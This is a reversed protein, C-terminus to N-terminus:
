LWTQFFLADSMHFVGAGLTAAQAVLAAGAPANTLDIPLYRLGPAFLASVSTAPSVLLTGDLMPIGAIGNMQPALDIAILVPGQVNMTEIKCDMSGAQYSGTVKITPTLTTGKGGLPVPRAFFTMGRHRRTGSPAAPAFPQVAGTLPDMVVGNGFSVMPTGAVSRCVAVGTALAPVAVAPAVTVWPGGAVPVRLVTANSCVAIIDNTWVDYDLGTVSTGAPVPIPAPPVVFMGAAYDYPALVFGDTVLLTKGSPDIPDLAMGTVQNFGPPAPYNSGPTGTGIASFPIADIGDAPFGTTTFLRRHVNDAAIAGARQNASPPRWSLNQRSTMAPAPACTSTAFERVAAPDYTALHQSAASAALLGVAAAAFLANTTKTM